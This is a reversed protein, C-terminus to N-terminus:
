MSDSVITMIKLTIKTHGNQTQGIKYNKMNKKSMEVQIYYESVLNHSM